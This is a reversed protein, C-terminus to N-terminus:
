KCIPDIVYCVNIDHVGNADQIIDSLITASEGGECLVGDDTAMNEFQIICM